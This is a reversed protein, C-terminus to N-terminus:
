ERFVIFNVTICITRDVYQDNTSCSSQMWVSVAIGPSIRWNVLCIQHLFLFFESDQVGNELSSFLAQTLHIMVFFLILCAIFKPPTSSNSNKMAPAHMLRPELIMHIAAFVNILFFSLWISYNSSLSDLAIRSDCNLRTLPM